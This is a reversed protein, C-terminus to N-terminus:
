DEWDGGVPPNRPEDYNFRGHPLIELNNRAESEQPTRYERRDVRPDYMRAYGGRHHGKFKDIYDVYGYIVLIAKNAVIDDWQTETVDFEHLHFFEDNTVLFSIPRIRRSDIIYEPANVETGPYFVDHRLYVDTVDAPTRGFNKIRVVVALREGSPFVGPAKHSLKVYARETIRSHRWQFFGVGAIIATLAVISRDDNWGLLWIIIEEGINHSQNGNTDNKAPVNEPSSIRITLILAFAVALLAAVIGRDERKILM